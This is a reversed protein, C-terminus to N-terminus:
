CGEPYHPAPGVNAFWRKVGEDVFRQRLERAHAAEERSLWAEAESRKNFLIDLVPADSLEDFHCVACHPSQEQLFYKVRPEKGPKGAHASGKGNNV